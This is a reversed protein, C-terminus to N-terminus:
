IFDKHSLLAAQLKMRRTRYTKVFLLRALSKSVVKFCKWWELVQKTYNYSKAQLEQLEKSQLKYSKYSKYSTARLVSGGNWFKNQIITARQKYSKYSKAQLEKCKSEKLQLGDAAISKRAFEDVFYALNMTVLLSRCLQITLM